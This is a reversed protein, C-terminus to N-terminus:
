RSDCNDSKKEPAYKQIWDNLLELQWFVYVSNLANQASTALRNASKTEKKYRKLAEEADSIESLAM